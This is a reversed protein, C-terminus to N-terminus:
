KYKHLIQQIETTTKGKTEPVVFISFILALACFADFMFFTPGSGIGYTLMPFTLGVIASILSSCLQGIPAVYAKADQLFLEGLLVYTVPGVGMSFSGIYVCLSTIPLWGLNDVNKGSEQLVFYTAVGTLALCNFINSVILLKRRGFRDVLIFTVSSGSLQVLAVIITAIRTDLGTGANDFIVSTYYVIPNMGSAQFFFFLCMMIMFAKKTSKTKFVESFSKKQALLTEHNKKLANVESQSDYSKGRLIRLSKLAETENNKTILYPPSEPLFQFAITYLVPVSGSVINLVLLSTYNGIIFVFLVGSNVTFIFMSLLKGRVEKSAIEGVYIPVVYSYCGAGIGGLYRGVM